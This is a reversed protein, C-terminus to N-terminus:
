IEKDSKDIVVTIHSTRKLLIDGKGKSRRWIRKMRPGDNVVITKIYCNEEDYGGNENLNIANNFASQTIKKLIFSSKNSINDFIAMSSLYSKGQVERALRVVKSPSIRIYNGRAFYGNEGSIRAKKNDERIRKKIVSKKEKREEM